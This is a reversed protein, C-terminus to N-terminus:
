RPLDLGRLAIINRQIESTGGAIRMGPAYLFRDTAPSALMAEAGRLTTVLLEVDFELESRLLKAASSAAADRDSRLLLTRLAQGRVYVQLLRDRLAPADGVLSRLYALRRELGVLGAGSSGREDVLVSMAVSWGENIPGLLASGPVRVGDLFVESFERDGTMQRIPRVEVGPTAMDLLFFSIGRHGTLIPNTRALLIGFEALEANSSWVKRGDIVYGDGDDARVATTQLSALDSGADPESFLQCWLIEGSLTPRLFRERQADTGSRLIAEGALVLGQINLQASVEARACEELWVATHDRTLGRGGHEVPWHLGAFGADVVWRQWARARDHRAPPLIAGFGPCAVGDEVSQALFAAVLARFAALDADADADIPAPATM